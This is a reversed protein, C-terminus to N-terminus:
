RSQYGHDREWRNLTAVDPMTVALLDRWLPNLHRTVFGTHWTLPLGMTRRRWLSVLADRHERPMAAALADMNEYITRYDMM